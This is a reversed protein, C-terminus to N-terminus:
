DYDALHRRRGGTLRDEQASLCLVCVTTWPMLVMRKIPIPKDCDACMGFDEPDRDIRKLAGDIQALTQMRVKNRNSAIVQSMESLPKADDDIKSVADDRLPDIRVSGEERLADRRENLLARLEDLADPSM